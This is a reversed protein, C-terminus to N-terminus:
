IRGLRALRDRATSRGRGQPTEDGHSVSSRQEGRNQEQAGQGPRQGMVHGAPGRGDGPLVVVMRDDDEVGRGPGIVSSSSRALAGIETSFKRFYTSM